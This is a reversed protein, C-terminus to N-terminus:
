RPVSRLLDWVEERTCLYFESAHPRLKHREIPFFRTPTLQRFCFWCCWKFPSSICACAHATVESQPRTLCNEAWHNTGWSLWVRHHDLLVFYPHTWPMPEVHPTHRYVFFFFFYFYTLFVLQHKSAPHLLLAVTYKQNSLYDCLVCCLGHSNSSTESSTTIPCSFTTAVTTSSNQCAVALCARM